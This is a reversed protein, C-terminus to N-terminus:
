ACIAWSESWIWMLMLVTDTVYQFNHACLCPNVCKTAFAFLDRNVRKQPLIKFKFKWGHLVDTYFLYPWTLHASSHHIRITLRLILLRLRFFSWMDIMRMNITVTKTIQLKGRSMKFMCSIVPSVWSWVPAKKKAPGWFKSIPCNFDHDDNNQQLWWSFFYNQLSLFLRIM